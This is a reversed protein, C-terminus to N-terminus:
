AREVEQQEDPDQLDLHAPVELAFEPTPRSDAVSANLLASLQELAEMCSPGPTGSAEAVVMGDPRVSVNLRRPM